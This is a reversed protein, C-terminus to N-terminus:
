VIVNAVPRRPSMPLTPGFGFRMVVDSRKGPMGALSALDPRLYAVEVPQNLFAHKLGLATAQLAFCQCAQGVRTWGDRDAHAALFVAVGASSRLQRAYKDNESETRFALDFM